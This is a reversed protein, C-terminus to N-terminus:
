SQVAPPNDSYHGDNTLYVWRERHLLLSITAPDGPWKVLWGDDLADARRSEVEGHCGTTASGCLIGLNSLLNVGPWRTGGKGRPRRHQVCWDTGRRDGLMHDCIMCSFGARELAAEVIEDTPGTSANKPRPVYPVTFGTRVIQAAM